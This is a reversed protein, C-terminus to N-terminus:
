LYVFQRIKVKCEPCHLSREVLKARHKSDERVWAGEVSLEHGCSPCLGIFENLRYHPLKSLIDEVGGRNVM